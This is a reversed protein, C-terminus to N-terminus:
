KVYGYSAKIPNNEKLAGMLSNRDNADIRGNLDIDCALRCINNVQKGAVINSLELYDAYNLLGDGNADGIMIPREVWYCSWTGGRSCNITGNTITATGNVTFECHDNSNADAYTISYSGNGNDTVGTVFISHQRVARYDLRLHDGLQPVYYGYIPMQMFKSTGFYDMQMERAFGACQGYPEERHYDFEEFGTRTMMSVPVYSCYFKGNSHDCGCVKGRNSIRLSKAPYNWYSGENFTYSRYKENIFSDMKAQNITVDNEGYNYKTRCMSTLYSLDAYSISGDRNTDAAKLHHQTPLLRSNGYDIYAKIITYDTGNVIGDDNADGRSYVGVADFADTIKQLYYSATSLKFNNNVAAIVADRCDSFAAESTKGHMDKLEDMSYYWIKKLDEIGIGNQYMLYAAHSIITSAEYASPRKGYSIDRSYDGYNTYYKSVSSDGTNATSPNALDRLCIDKNNNKINDYFIDTGIKWDRTDDNLEGMIDSYAEMLAQTELPSFTNWGLKFQTVLHTLEHTVIDVDAGYCQTAKVNSSSYPGYSQQQPNEGTGMTFKILGDLSTANTKGIEEDLAVYITHDDIYNYNDFGFEAYFDYAKEINYMIADYVRRIKINKGLETRNVMDKVYVKKPIAGKTDTLPDQNPEFRVIKINRKLDYYYENNNYKSTDLYFTGHTLVSSRSKYLVPNNRCETVNQTFQDSVSLFTTYDEASSSLSTLAMAASCAATSFALVKKLIKKM